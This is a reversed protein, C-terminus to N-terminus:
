SLSGEKKNYQRRAMLLATVIFPNAKFSLDLGACYVDIGSEIM